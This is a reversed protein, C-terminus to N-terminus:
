GQVVHHNLWIQAVAPSSLFFSAWVGREKEKDLWDWRVTALFYM